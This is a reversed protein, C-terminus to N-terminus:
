QVSRRRRRAVVFWHVRSGPAAAAHAWRGVLGGADVRACREVVFDGAFVRRLESRDFYAHLVGAEPGDPESWAGPQVQFEDRCRPDNRSGFTAYLPGGPRLVAALRAVLAAVSQQDGHLLAHTSLVAAYPTAPTALAAYSELLIASVRPQGAFRRAIAAVRERGTDVADVHLAASVFPPINRGDGAGLLLVRAGRQAALRAILADALPHAGPQEAPLPRNSRARRM